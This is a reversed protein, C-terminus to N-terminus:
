HIEDAWSSLLIGQPDTHPRLSACVPCLNCLHGSVFSFFLLSQSVPTLTSQKTGPCLVHVHPLRTFSSSSRGGYHRTKSQESKPIIGSISPVGRPLRQSARGAPMMPLKM